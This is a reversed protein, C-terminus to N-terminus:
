NFLLNLSIVLAHVISCIRREILSLLFFLAPTQVPNTSSFSLACWLRRNLISLTKCSFNQCCSSSFFTCLSNCPALLPLPPALFPIWDPTRQFHALFLFCVLAMRCFSSSLPLLNILILTSPFPPPLFPCGACPFHHSYFLNKSFTYHSKQYGGGEGKGVM